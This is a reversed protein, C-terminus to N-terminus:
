DRLNELLKNWKEIEQKTPETIDKCAYERGLLEYKYSGITHYPMIQIGQCSKMERCIEKLKIFHEKRDNLTPIIPARIIFPIKRENIIELNRLIPELRVGTYKKHLAEDTEKVDFLVYDCYEIVSLLSQEDAFGSTEIATNIGNEKCKKLLGGTFESQFIPEGGSVTVGGGSTDYYVKDKQVENFVEDVSVTRGYLRVAKTPCDEVCAGCGVCLSRNFEHMPNMLHSVSACVKVCRGCALCKKSDYALEIQKSQSEPNHCWVCRLPCGKLFVTTRIGPGDNTCFRVVNIINGNM